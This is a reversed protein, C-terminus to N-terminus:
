KVELNQIERTIYAGVPISNVFVEELMIEGDKTRTKAYIDLNKGERRFRLLTDSAIAANEEMYYRDLPIDIYLGNSSKSAVKIKVYSGQPAHTFIQVIESYDGNQAMSAYLIDGRSYQKWNDFKYAQNEAKYRLDIYRGRFPDSPDVPMCELYHVDGNKIINESDFIMKLPITLQLIVMLAFTIQVYRNQMTQEKKYYLGIQLM